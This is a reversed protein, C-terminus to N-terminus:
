APQEGASTPASARTALTESVDEDGNAASEIVLLPCPAHRQLYDSTSGIVRRGFSGYSRSGVVLVDLDAGFQALQEGALGYVAAGEVGPLAGLRDGAEKLMLDISEGIEPPVYGPYVFSPISVVQLARLRAGHAAALARGAALAAESESSGDYGVGVAVIDSPHEAYGRPATAVACPAGVLTARADDGAFVRGVLGRSCSGVVILEAGTRSALAHLGKAVSSASCSEIRAAAGSLARERELLSQSRGRRASGDDPAPIPERAHVHALTLEGGPELLRLALAIADRGTPRGDVGVLAKGFM